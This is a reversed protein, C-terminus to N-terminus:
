QRLDLDLIRYISVANQSVVRGERCIATDATGLLLLTVLIM